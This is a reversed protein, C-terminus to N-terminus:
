ASRGKKPKSCNPCLVSVTSRTRSCITAYWEFGCTKCKWWCAKKSYPTVQDPRLPNNQSYDWQLAVIPFRSALDNYGKWVKRNACYPCGRGRVRSDVSAKWKHGKECVWTYCKNSHAIVETAKRDNDDAWEKAIDPHSSALDNYGILVKKGGCYPCGTGHVRNSIKAIWQHGLVCKWHVSRGSVASFQEPILPYNQEYDWENVLNPYESALSKEQFSLKAMELIHTTDATINVPFNTNSLGARTSLLQLLTQIGCELSGVSRSILDITMQLNGVPCLPERIHIVAIGREACIIDKEIDKQLDKHWEAGDYEVGINVNPIFIDLERPSLWEPRFSEVAAPFVKKVYFFVAKEQFSIQQYYFCKPCGRGANRSAISAKWENGCIRCRWFVKRHTGAVVQNPSLDNNLTPHWEEALWPNTTALDNQGAVVIKNACAPCGRGQNRQLPSQQWIFSCKSCKWFVKKNSNVLVDHPTLPTNIEDAWEAALLPNNDYLSGYKELLNKNLNAIQAKRGCEPCGNGHYRSKIEAQWNYGCESCIWFAHKHSGCGLIYPSLNLANNREWDWDIILKPNDSVVHQPPRGM